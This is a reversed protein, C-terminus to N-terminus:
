VVIGSVTLATLEQQRRLILGTHSYAEAIAVLGVWRRAVHYSRLSIQMFNIFPSSPGGLIILALNASAILATKSEMLVNDEGLRLGLALGNLTLYVLVLGLELRTVSWFRLSTHTYRLQMIFNRLRSGLRLRHSLLCSLSHLLRLTAVGYVIVLYFSITSMM